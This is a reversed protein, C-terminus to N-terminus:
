PRRLGHRKENSGALPSRSIASTPPEWCSSSSLIEERSGAPAGGGNKPQGHTSPVIVSSGLQGTECVGTAGSKVKLWPM